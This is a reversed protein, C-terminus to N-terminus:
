DKNELSSLILNVDEETLSQNSSIRIVEEDKVLFFQGSEKKSESYVEYGKDNLEKVQVKEINYPVEEDMYMEMYIDFYLDVYKNIIGKYKSKFVSVDIYPYLTQSADEESIDDPSIYNEFFSLESALFSEKFKFESERYSYDKEHYFGLENLTIPLKDEKYSPLANKGSIGFSILAIGLITTLQLTIFTIVITMAINTKRNSIKSKMFRGQILLVAIMLIFFIIYLFIFKRSNLMTFIIGFFMIVILILRALMRKKSKEPSYLILTEGLSLRRKNKLYYTSVDIFSWLSNILFVIFFFSIGMAFSSTIFSKFLFFSKMMDKGQYIGLFIYFIALIWITIQTSVSAKVISNLRFHDETEIDPSDMDETYFCQMKGSSFCHKWGAVKCYDILEQTKNEPKSDFVSAKTFFDVYFRRKKPECEEFEYFLTSNGVLMYGQESMESFFDELALVEMHSAPFYKKITKRKEKKHM